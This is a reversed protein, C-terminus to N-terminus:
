LWVEEFVLYGVDGCGYYYVIGDVVVWWVVDVIGGVIEVV